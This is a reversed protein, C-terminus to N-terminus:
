GDVLALSSWPELSIETGALHRAPDAETLDSVDHPVTVTAGSASWNHVFWVRAGDPLTGSAVTVTDGRTWGAAIPQPVAYRVVDASLAGNPVTGVYTIRGTGAGRTTVAPFRGFSSHEYTALVDAGEVVLGDAWDTARAEPSLPLAESGTVALEDDLNTFEEYWVGAADHLKDPAVALRARAEEDAYGTRPGVILHGGAQAYDALLQLEDDDAIYVAPAVLVPFRRVLEAAGIAVAQAVHLIRAQAGAGIVGAHFADVIHQYSDRRGTTGDVNLPPTFDFAFRTATSWLIAVDADPEYGDLRTGIQKLAAGIEAVERYVRGPRQSHPLVGGWYTETGFHLTHWHWYEIQTAGRAILAFASQKLQGPYPPYNQSAGGISWANTETVLFRRQNSSFLRDAQRYLGAVGTSTWSTPVPKVHDLSLHDQVGYYPNGATIDLAAVLKEDDIAPRPYAICTTVFQEPRSYERVIDAQWSIFETTVQAQFQRWALDYQPQANGDPTWLESWDAIRHSWYVLGWAKNLEDVTGYKAKLQRVFRRFTSPNHFLLMGPENDVQFGIVAPHDAYREVIARIVREAHFLFAPHSYDVEQRSGWPMPEGTKTQAAIEPHSQQLWPPVAYTPTGLIVSIGRAHAGDLVPLLWDLDFEGDRPEWTSWVSEGVRIVTFGAEVMLDLDTDLRDGLQYEAYYAAGFLIRDPTAAATLPQPTHATAPHMTM